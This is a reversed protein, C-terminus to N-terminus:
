SGRYTSYGYPGILLPVHYHEGPGAIHFVIPVYPYFGATDTAAFWAGTDFTIRFTGHLAADTPVLDRARGDADTHRHALVRWSDDVLHELTVPVGKAPRGRSIDLVHTSITSM